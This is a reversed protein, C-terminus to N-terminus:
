PDREKGDAGNRHAARAASPIVNLVFVNIRLYLSGRRTGQGSSIDGQLLRVEELAPAAVDVGQATAGSCSALALAAGCALTWKALNM